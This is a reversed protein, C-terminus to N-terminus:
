DLWGIDVPDYDGGGRLGSGVLLPTLDTRTTAGLVGIQKLSRDAIVHGSTAVFFRGAIELCTGSAIKRPRDDEDHLFVAVVRKGVHERMAIIEQKLLENGPM